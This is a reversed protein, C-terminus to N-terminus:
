ERRGTFIQRANAFFHTVLGVLGVLFFLVGIAWGLRPFWLFLWCRRGARNTLGIALGLLGLAMGQEEREIKM